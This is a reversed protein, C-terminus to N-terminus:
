VAPLEFIFRSGKELGASEVWIKGGNGEVLQKAVYLGLGTGTTNVRNADRARTFKVFLHGIEDEAIGIGTDSITVRAQKGRKEVAVTVSGNETYKIANDILNTLVQKMKGIDAKISLPEPTALSITLGRKTAVPTLENVVTGALATLDFVSREYKMRGQEIRSINLYDEISNAMLRSSDQIVRLPEQLYEPIPGYSGDRINSAYGRIATIPARLQHAAISLFEDKLRDIEALNDARRKWLYILTAALVSIVLILFVIFVLFPYLTQRTVDFFDDAKIDTALVAVVNGADDRIPAYGTLVEGYSDEYLESATLPGNYAEYTEPIDVAEEYDQGPWQLYDAGEPDVIGDGNADVDNTPDDDSNAYPNISEADAVFEMQSPDEAKMRYIYMFVINPNQDKARKLSMVVERWEPKQWDAEEQLAALDEADINSAQTISISLLRERLNQTLLEITQQYLFWSAAVAISVALLAILSGLWILSGLRRGGAKTSM